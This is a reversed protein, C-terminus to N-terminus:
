QGFKYKFELGFTRPEGYLNVAEGLSQLVSISSIAYNYNNLNNVFAAITVPSGYINSWEARLNVIGYPAQGQSQEVEKLGIIPAFAQINRTAATSFWVQTQYAATMTLALKGVAESVPINYTLSLGVKNQPVNPFASNVLNLLCEGKPSSSLCQPSGPQILNLPDSGTWKTFRADTYSYNLSGVLRGSVFEDQLEFGKMQAAAANVTFTATIGDGSAFETEQINDFNLLYVDADIRNHVEGVSFDAKIGAEYDTVTEPAYTPQYSAFIGAAGVVSNVGGPVYATRTTGYIMVDDTLQADIALTTNVGSSSSVASPAAAGPIYQGTAVDQGPDLFKQDTSDWTDRGGVTIHLGKIFPEVLRSLNFTGQGYIAEETLSGGDQFSFSPQFGLTPQFVGGFTRAINQIGSLNTPLPQISYFNGINWSILDDGVVGRVQMEDTYTSVYPSNTFYGVAPANLRSAQNGANSYFFGGNGGGSGAGVQGGSIASFLTGGIGDIEWGSSGNSSDVSFINRFTLTTFGIKGFDYQAQNVFFFQNLFETQPIGANEPGGTTSLAGNGGAAIRALQAQMAPLWTSAIQLRQNICGNLSSQIGAAVAQACVAGFNATGAALGGPASINAPLHFEAITPNDATLIWGPASEDVGVYDLVAYESFRGDGPKWLVSVRAAWNNTGNLTQDAGEVQTYGDLHYRDAAIRVALQDDIIPVNVVATEQNLGMGGAKFDVFGNTSNLDPRSPEFLVAGAISSRGFLTGQPGNLVQISNMDYLPASPISTPGGPAEAFYNGTGQIGRVSYSGVLRSFVTYSQVSPAVFQIDIPNVIGQNVIAAKDIATVALPVKQIDESVRRATVLVEGVNGAGSQENASAAAADTATVSTVPNAPATDARANGAVLIAAASSMLVLTLPAPNPRLVVGRHSARM